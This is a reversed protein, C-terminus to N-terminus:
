MVCAITEDVIGASLFADHARVCARACAVGTIAADMSALHASTHRRRGRSEDTAITDRARAAMETADPLPENTSCGRM